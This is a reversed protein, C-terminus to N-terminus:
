GERYNRRGRKIKDRPSRERLLVRCLGPDIYQQLLFSVLALRVSEMLQYTYTRRLTLLMVFVYAFVLCTLSCTIMAIISTVFQFLRCIHIQTIGGIGRDLVFTIAFTTCVM